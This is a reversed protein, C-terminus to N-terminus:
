ECISNVTDLVRRDRLINRLDSDLEAIRSEIIRADDLNPDVLRFATQRLSLVEDAAPMGDGASADSSQMRIFRVLGLRPDVVIQRESISAPWDDDNKRPSSANENPRLASAQTVQETKTLSGSEPKAL